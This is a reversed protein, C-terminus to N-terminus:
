KLVSASFGNTKLTSIDNWTLGFRLADAGCKPIGQPFDKKLNSALKNFDKKSLSGNAVSQAMEDELDKLTAGNIIHMPDVVNGLSKSMKRGQADCIIGHLMVEKFPLSDTM